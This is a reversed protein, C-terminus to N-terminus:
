LGLLYSQYCAYWTRYDYMTICGDADFDAEMIFGPDGSCKRYASFFISRDDTDVDGDLDLDGCIELAEETVTIVADCTSMEGYSDTVQLVVDHVGVGFPGAPLIELFINDGYPIDPDTSGNDVDLATVAATGGAAVVRAVDQCNAEPPQNAVITMDFLVPSADDEPDPSFTAKIIFYQGSLGSVVGNEMTTYDTDNVLGPDSVTDSAFAEVVLETEGPLSETWILQVNGVGPVGFDHVVTWIGIPNNQIFSAGSADSYTYPYLGTDVTGLPSGDTGQYKSVTGDYIDVTWVDGNADPIAGRKSGGTSGAQAASTWIVSGDPNFKTAGNYSAGSWGSSLINGDADVSIGLTWWNNNSPDFFTGTAPDYQLWPAAADGLYVQDNGIGIGYNGGSHALRTFDGTNTDLRGLNSSLSASWLIGDSDVLSGYPTHNPTAYPGSIIAGTSGSLELYVQLSYLGVWINGDPAISLSRALGNFGSEQGNNDYAIRTVWAVREDEIEDITILGDANLDTIALVEGDSDGIAGSTDLDMSTQIIGDGNRDIGGNALIKFVYAWGSFGRNAVYVNGDGDVATRSPAPGAWASHTAYGNPGVQGGFWTRYKAIVLNSNTNIKAVTDEGANAIWMIPFANIQSSIQLQNDNPPDHNLNFLTGEDFDASDTWIKVQAGLISAGAILLTMTAALGRFRLINM